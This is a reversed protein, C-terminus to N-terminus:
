LDFEMRPQLRGDIATKLVFVHTGHIQEVRIALSFMKFRRIAKHHMKSLLKDSNREHKILDETLYYYVKPSKLKAFRDLDDVTLESFNSKFVEFEELSQSSNILEWFAKLIDLPTLAEHTKNVRELGKFKTYGDKPTALYSSTSVLYTRDEDLLSGGIEIEEENVRHMPESQPDFRIKAGSICLFNGMEEPYNQLGQEILLKLTKGPVKLTIVTDQYPLLKIADKFYLIEGDEYLTESRFAGANMITIDSETAVRILDTMFNGIYSEGTRVSESRIDLQGEIKFIPRSFAQMLPGLIVENSQELSQDRPGKFNVKVKTIEVNLYRNMGRDLSFNFGDYQDENVGQRMLYSFEKGTVATLKSSSLAQNGFELKLDSFNEFDCGSKLLLKQKIKKVYYIHVHGGLVIDVYNSDDDLIAEDTSNEMHTVALILDCGQDKLIKSVRRAANFAPEYEFEQVKLSCSKIWSDDILGFVGVKLGNVETIEYESADGLNRNRQNKHKFNALLWKMSHNETLKFFWEEGFDVDHNGIVAYQCQIRDLFNSFQEGKRFVSAVSPNFLDGSFIRLTNETSRSMFEHAFAPTKEFDYGDNFHLIRLQQNNREAHSARSPSYISKRERPFSDDSSRHKSPSRLMDEITLGVLILLVIQKNLAM